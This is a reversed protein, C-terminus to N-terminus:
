CRTECGADVGSNNPGDGRRKAIVQEERPYLPLPRDPAPLDPQQRPNLPTRAADSLANEPVVQLWLFGHGPLTVLYPGTEIGPFRCGGFLEVPARSKWESIGPWEAKLKKPLDRDPEAITVIFPLLHFRRRIAEDVGRLGPKHNGAIVLKFAPTYTFFDQRM